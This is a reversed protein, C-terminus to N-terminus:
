PLRLRQGVELPASGNLDVLRDVTARVDEHRAISSAISWLTDGPQVIHVPHTSGVLEVPAAVGAAGSADASTPSPAGVATSPHGGDALRASIAGVLLVLAVAVTALTALAVARRRRYVARQALRPASRGGELVRLAPRPPSTPGPPVTGPLLRLAPSTTTMLATM